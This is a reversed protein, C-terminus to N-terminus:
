VTVEHLGLAFMVAACTLLYPWDVKVDRNAFGWFLLGGFGFGMGWNGAVDKLWGGSLILTDVQFIMGAKEADGLQMGLGEFRGLDELGEALADRGHTSCSSCCRDAMLLGAGIGLTAGM